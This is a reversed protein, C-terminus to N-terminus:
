CIASFSIKLSDKIFEIALFDFFKDKEAVYKTDAM